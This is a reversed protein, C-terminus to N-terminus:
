QQNPELNMLSNICIKRDSPNVLPSNNLAECIQLRVMQSVAGLVWDPNKILQDVVDKIDYKRVRSCDITSDRLMFPHGQVEMSVQCKAMAPRSQVFNSIKSNIVVTLCNEDRHLLIFRKEHVSGDDMVQCSKFVRGPVLSRDISSAVMHRPFSDGLSSM